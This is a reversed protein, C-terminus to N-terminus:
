ATTPAPPSTATSWLLEWGPAWPWRTPLHLVLRRGTTAILAPINILRTRMAAWRAARMLSAVATTRAINFAIVAAAVWPDEDISTIANLVSRNM